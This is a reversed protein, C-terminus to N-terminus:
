QEGRAHASREVMVTKGVGKTGEISAAPLGALPSDLEADVIRAQYDM